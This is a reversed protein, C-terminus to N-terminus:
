TDLKMLCDVMTLYDDASGKIIGQLRYNSGSVKTLGGSIVANAFPTIEYQMAFASGTFAILLICALTAAFLRKKM